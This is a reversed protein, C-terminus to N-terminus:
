LSPVALWREGSTGRVQQLTFANEFVAMLAQQLGADGPAGLAVVRGSQMVWVCHAALAANVDHMVAAVALGAQACEQLTRLLAMQHPPDLHTAPEDLLLVQPQVALARALLVRQREGGSLQALPRAAYAQAQTQLLASQAAMEDNPGPQGWLGHHPLRALRVVELATLESAEATAGSSQSLWALRQARERATWDRMSRGLLQVGGTDPQQLGALLSLLTSKGAGNPGVIATWQGAHLSVDVQDIVKRGGLALCLGRASLLATQAPDAQSM